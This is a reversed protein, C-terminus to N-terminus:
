STSDIVTSVFERMISHAATNIPMNAVDKVIWAIAKSAPSVLLEKKMMNRVTNTRYKVYVNVPSHMVKIAHLATDMLIIPCM